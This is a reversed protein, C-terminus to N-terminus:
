VPQDSQQSAWWNHDHSKTYSYETPVESIRTDEQAGVVVITQLDHNHLDLENIQM